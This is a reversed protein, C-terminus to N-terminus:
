AAQELQRHKEESKIIVDAMRITNTHIRKLKDIIEIELSYTAL